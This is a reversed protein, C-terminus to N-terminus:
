LYLSQNTVVFKMVNEECYTLKHQFSVDNLILAINKLENVINVVKLLSKIFEGLFVGKEHQAQQIVVKCKMETDADCWDLMSKVMDYHYTRELGTDMGHKVEIDEYKDFSPKILKLSDELDKNVGIRDIAYSSVRLDDKITLNTFCSMFAVLDKATFEGFNNTQKLLDIMVLPHVEQIKTVCDGRLTKQWTTSTLCGIDVLISLVKNIQNPIYREIKDMYERESEIEIRNCDLVNLLEVDRLLHKNEQEMQRIEQEMRKRKKNTMKKVAITKEMYEMIVECATARISNYKDEEKIYAIDMRELREQVEHLETEIDQYLMSNRVYSSIREVVDDQNTILSEDNAMMNLVENYGLKFKSTFLQSKGSLMQRYEQVPPLKFMNCCHIVYGITDLGRRGARGAMQTYEHPQMMRMSNGDFKEAGTFIVTKTPMNIGVAFTETAFLLKIYGKSFLLEVMERLVPAIGSHHIAIGKELLKMMMQFEPLNIYELHNSLKSLITKCEKEVMQPMQSDKSHLSKEIEHAYEEVKNRSFVFSIAPLMKERNLYEVLKNLGFTKKVDIKDKQWTRQIKNMKEFVVDNFLGSQEKIVIPSNCMEIAMRKTTSDSMGDVNNHRSLWLYHTLPVVRHETSCIVVTKNEQIRIERSSSETKSKMTTIWDAFRKPHQITASLMLMQVCQPLLMITEEWIKGRGADNIYHVEDFIVCGLENEIDMEFDLEVLDKNKLLMQYLTNRLIETTMILVDAEPNFKIDGTLIGFSINPFSKSFEHFKQNSLAKIPATYIVKKGKEHFHSIAWEAPLTKGSGTHATVLVHNGCVLGNIADVQFQSLSLGAFMM